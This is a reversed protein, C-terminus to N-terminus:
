PNGGKTKSQLETIRKQYEIHKALDTEAAKRKKLYRIELVILTDFLQRALRDADSVDLLGVAAVTDSEAASLREQFGKLDLGGSEEVFALLHDALSRVAPHQLWELSLSDLAARCMAESSLLIQLLQWEPVSEDKANIGAIGVTLGPAVATGPRSTPVPLSDYGGQAVKVQISKLGLRKRLTELYQEKVLNSPILQLLAVTEQLLADKEEPSMSSVPMGANRLMFAVIDEGVAFAERVKDGGHKRAYSDPDEEVPLVPVRVEMGASLLPELSRRVAKRGAADGDLFLYAKRAFRSLIHV